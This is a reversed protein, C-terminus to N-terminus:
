AIKHVEDDRHSPIDQENCAERLNSESNPVPNDQIYEFFINKYSRKNNIVNRIRERLSKVSSSSYGKAIIYEACAGVYPFCIAEGDPFYAKIPKARGNQAGPRGLKKAEEPHEQYFKKLTDNRYNPNDKGFHQYHGKQSSYNVNDKHEIWELNSACSNTRDYDKHNVEPLNLPNPVFHLAVLRHLFVTKVTGHDHLKVTLYGDQNTIPAIEKGPYVQLVGNKKLVSRELSRLRGLNSIEYIGEYNKVPKWIEEM